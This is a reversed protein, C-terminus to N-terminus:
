NYASIIVGGGLVIDGNYFVASQGPAVAFQSEELIIEAKENKISVHCAAPKKHSGTQVYCYFDPSAYPLLWNMNTIEFRAFKVKELPALVIENNEPRIEKVYLRKGGYLGPQRQGITYNYFGEHLCIFNGLEDIMRGPMKKLMFNKKLFLSYNGNPIFCIKQSDPSEAAPISYEKALQRVERKTMRGLPFLIHPLYNRNIGYLFYSQDKLSDAGRRLIHRGSEKDIQAYHGSALFSCGLSSAIGWLYSFKIHRNCEICPNPTLGNIYSEAFPLIVKRSFLEAACKCYHRIGIAAASSRAKGASGSESSMGLTLGIVDYGEYKLVAAAVASDVGGSMAVAAKRKM